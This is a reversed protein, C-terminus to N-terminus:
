FVFGCDYPLLVESQKEMVRHPFARSITYAERLFGGWKTFVVVRVRVVNAEMEVKPEFTIAAAKEGWAAVSKQPVSKALINDFGARDCVVRYDNYGAHWWQYFRSGLIRLVVLQFFGEATDDVRIGDTYDFRAKALAVPGNAKKFDSYTRYPPENTRRVYLIPEGGETQYFYVYDLVCEPPPSLHRLVAFYRNVDFEKGTKVTEEELLHKPPTLDVILATMQDVVNRYFEDGSPASSTRAAPFACLLVLYTLTKAKM